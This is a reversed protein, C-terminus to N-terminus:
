IIEGKDQTLKQEGTARHYINFLVHERCESSSAQWTHSADWYKRYIGDALEPPLVVHIM